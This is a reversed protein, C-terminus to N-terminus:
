PYGHIVNKLTAPQLALWANQLSQETAKVLIVLVIQKSRASLDNFVGVGDLTGPNGKLCVLVM